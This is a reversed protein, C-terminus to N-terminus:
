EWIKPAGEIVPWNDFGFDVGWPPSVLRKQKGTSAVGDLKAVDSDDLKNYAALAGELNSSIRSPTVSKPLVCVEKKVILSTLKYPNFRLMPPFMRLYGLLVDSAGINHKKAIEIATEDSM